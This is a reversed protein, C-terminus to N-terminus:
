KARINNESNQHNDDSLIKSFDVHIEKNINSSHQHEAVTESWESLQPYITKMEM